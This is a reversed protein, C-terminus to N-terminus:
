LSSPIIDVVPPSRLTLILDRELAESVCRMRSTMNSYARKSVGSSIYPSLTLLSCSSSSFFRISGKFERVHHSQSSPKLECRRFKLLSLIEHFIHSKYQLSSRNGCCIEVFPAIYCLCLCISTNKDSRRLVSKVTSVGCVSIM